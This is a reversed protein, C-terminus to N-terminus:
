LNVQILHPVPEALARTLVDALEEATDVAEALVGMGQSVGVWDIDSRKLEMLSLVDRDAPRGQARKFEADLIKYSRNACMLTSINLSERAQTWLAQITYM